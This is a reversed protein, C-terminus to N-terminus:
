GSLNTWHWTFHRDVLTQVDGLELHGSSIIVPLLRCLGTRRLTLWSLWLLVVCLLCTGEGWLFCVTLFSYLLATLLNGHKCFVKITKLWRFNYQNHFDTKIKIKNKIKEEFIRWLTLFKNSSFHYRNLWFWSNSELSSQFNIVSLINPRQNNYSLHQISSPRTTLFIHPHERHIAILRCVSNQVELISLLFCSFFCYKHIM